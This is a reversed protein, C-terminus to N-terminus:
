KRGILEAPAFKIKQTVRVVLKRRCIKKRKRVLKAAPANKKKGQPSETQKPLEDSVAPKSTKVM